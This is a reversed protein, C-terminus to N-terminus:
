SYDRHLTAVASYVGLVRHESWMEGWALLGLMAQLCVASADELDILDPGQM